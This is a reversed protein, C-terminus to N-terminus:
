WREGRRVRVPVMAAMVRGDDVSGAVGVELGGAEVCRVEADDALDHM